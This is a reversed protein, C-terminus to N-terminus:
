LCDHFVRCVFFLGYLSLLIWGIILYFAIVAVRWTIPKTAKLLFPLGAGISFALGLYDWTRNLDSKRSILLYLSMLLLPALVTGSIYISGRDTNEDVHLRCNKYKKGSGCWCSDIKRNADNKESATSDM